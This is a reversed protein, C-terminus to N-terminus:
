AGDAVDGNDRNLLTCELDAEICVERGDVGVVVDTRDWVGDGVAARDCVGVGASARECVEIPMRACVGAGGASGM